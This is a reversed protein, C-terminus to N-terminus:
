VAPRCNDGSIDLLCCGACRAQGNSDLGQAAEGADPREPCQPIRGAAMAAYLPLGRPGKPLHCPMGLAHLASSLVSPAKGGDLRGVCLDRLAVFCPAALLNDPGPRLMRWFDAVAAVLVPDPTTM